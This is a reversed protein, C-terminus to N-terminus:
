FVKLSDICDVRFVVADDGLLAMLYTGAAFFAAKLRSGVRQKPLRKHRRQFDATPLSLWRSLTSRELENPPYATM